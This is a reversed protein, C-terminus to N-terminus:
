LVIKAIAETASGKKEELDFKKFEFYLSEEYVDKITKWANSWKVFLPDTPVSSKRGSVDGAYGLM